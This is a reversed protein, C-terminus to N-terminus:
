TEKAGGQNGQTGDGTAIGAAVETGAREGNGVEWQKEESRTGRWTNHEAGTNNNRWRVAGQCKRVGNFTNKGFYAQRCRIPVRYAGSPGVSRNGTRAPAVKGEGGAGAAAAYYDEGDNAKLRGTGSLDSSSRNGRPKREHILGILSHNLPRTM